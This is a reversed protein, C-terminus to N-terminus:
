ASSRGTQLKVSITTVLGAHTLHEGLHLDVDDLSGILGLAEDHQRFSPDDFSDESPEVATTPQCRRDILPTTLAQPSHKGLKRWLRRKMKLRQAVVDSVANMKESLAFESARFMMMMRTTCKLGDHTDGLRKVNAITQSRTLNPSRPHCPPLTRFRNAAQPKPLLRRHVSHASKAFSNNKKLIESINRGGPLQTLHNVRKIHHQQQAQQRHQGPSLREGVDRAKFLLLEIKQPPEPREAIASRGM